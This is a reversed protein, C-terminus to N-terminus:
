LRKIAAFEGADGIYYGGATSVVLTNQLTIGPAPNFRDCLGDNCSTDGFEYVNGTIVGNGAGGFISLNRIVLNEVSRAFFGNVTRAGAIGVNNEYFNDTPLQYEDPHLNNIFLNTTNIGINGLFKNRSGCNGFLTHVTEEAINNEFINDDSSYPIFADNPGGASPCQARYDRAHAYNRRFVNGETSLAYIGNRNFGYLENGEVLNRTTGDQWLLIGGEGGLCSDTTNYLLNNRIINDSSGGSFQICDSNRITLGDIIWWDCNKLSMFKDANDNHIVAKRQNKAKITIPSGSIGNKANGGTNCDARFNGTEARKYIGDMLILTDGPNLKPVAYAFTKWPASSATGLNGDNGSPSMYYTAAVAAGAM